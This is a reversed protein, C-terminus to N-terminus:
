RLINKADRYVLAYIDPNDSSSGIKIKDKLSSYFYNKRKSQYLKKIKEWRDKENKWAELFIRKSKLLIVDIANDNELLLEEKVINRILNRLNM